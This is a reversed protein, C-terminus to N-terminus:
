TTAAPAPEPPTRIGQALALAILVIVVGFLFTARLGFTEWAAGGILPVIVSAIHNIGQEVSLNSTIEERTVAIKQFYTTLAINFGIFINDLFFLGFLVPLATVYAYGLFVLTLAAFAITLALREGLRGVLDGTIRLTLINIVGNVLLLLATTQVGVHHERVLLFIAFTTFIHRRSGLLFALVYYLWYRRRLIIKRNAPLGHGGTRFALLLLGGVIVVLGVGTFMNRYGAQRALLYVLLTGAVSAIAGLSGLNGLARPTDQKKMAMLVVANSSPLFFHFGLSMVFTTLVLSTINNAQGSLLIGIGLLIVSLSIIRTESIFLALVGTAIALLGPIERVSQIIGMAGPGVNVQEVAFNNFLTQWIIYGFNLLFNSFIIFFLLRRNDKLM